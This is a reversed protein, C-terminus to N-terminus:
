GTYALVAVIANTGSPYEDVCYKSYTKTRVIPSQPTQFGSFNM